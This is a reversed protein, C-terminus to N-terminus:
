TIRVFISRYVRLGTACRTPAFRAIAFEVLVAVGIASLTFLIGYLPVLFRGGTEYLSAVLVTNMVPLGVLVWAEPRRKAVLYIAGVLILLRWVLSKGTYPNWHTVVRAMFLRPLEDMHEAIWARVLRKSEDVIM